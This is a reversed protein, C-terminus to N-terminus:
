EHSAAPQPGDDELPRHHRRFVVLFLLGVVAGARHPWHGGGPLWGFVAAALSGVFLVVPLVINPIRLPLKREFPFAVHCSFVIAAAMASFGIGATDRVLISLSGALIATFVLVAFRRSGILREVWTGPTGSRGALRAGRDIWGAAVPDPRSDAPGYVDRLTAFRQTGVGM